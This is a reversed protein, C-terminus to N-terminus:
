MTNFTTAKCQNCQMAECQLANWEMANAKCTCSMINQITSCQMQMAHCQMANCQVANCQKANCKFKYECQMANDQMIYPQRAKTVNCQKVNRYMRNWQM